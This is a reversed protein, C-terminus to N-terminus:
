KLNGLKGFDLIEDGAVFVEFQDLNQQLFPSLIKDKLIDTGEVVLNYSPMVILIKNKYRGKLFCKYTELRTGKRLQIAPHEHGIVILGAKKFEIDNPIVDGHTFFIQGITYHAHLALKRKRAIPELINDHNGKILIISKCKSSLYDWLQLTYRWETESITSFEHKLDGNIIITRPKIKNFTNKELRDITEKYQFRPLLIGQKNLSEEYGMHIDSIVLTNYKRLYLCLDVMEIDKYIEM